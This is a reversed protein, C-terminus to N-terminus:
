PKRLDLAALEAVLAELDREFRTLAALLDADPELLASDFDFPPV